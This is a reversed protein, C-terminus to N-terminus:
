YFIKALVFGYARITNKVKESVEEEKENRLVCDLVRVRIGIRGIWEM